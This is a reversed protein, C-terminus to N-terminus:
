HMPQIFLLIEVMSDKISLYKTDQLLLMVMMGLFIGAFFFKWQVQLNLHSYYFFKFNFSHLCILVFRAYLYQPLRIYLTLLLWRLYEIFFTRLFRAINVSVCRHQLWKKLFNYSEPRNKLISSCRRVAAKQSHKRFHKGLIKRLYMYFWM